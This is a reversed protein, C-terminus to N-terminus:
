QQKRKTIMISQSSMRLMHHFDWPSHCVCIYLLATTLAFYCIYWVQAFYQNIIIICDVNLALVFDTHM